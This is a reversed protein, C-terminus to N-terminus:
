IKMIKNFKAADMRGNEDLHKRTTMLHFDRLEGTPFVIIEKNLRFITRLEMDTREFGLNTLISFLKQKQELTVTDKM